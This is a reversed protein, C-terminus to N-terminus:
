FKISDISVVAGVHFIVLLVVIMVLKNTYNDPQEARKDNDALMDEIGPMKLCPKPLLACFQSNNGFSCSVLLSFIRLVM